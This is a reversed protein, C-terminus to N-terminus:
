KKNFNIITNKIFSQGKTIKQQIIPCFSNHLSKLLMFGIFFFVALSNIMSIAIKATSPVKNVKTGICKPAVVNVEIAQYM